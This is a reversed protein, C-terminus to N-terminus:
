LSCRKVRLQTACASKRCGPRWLQAPYRRFLCISPLRILSLLYLFLFLDLTSCVIAASCWKRSSTWNRPNELSCLWEDEPKVVQPFALPPKLYPLCGDHISAHSKLKPAPEELDHHVHTVSSRASSTERTKFAPREHDHEVHTISSRRSSM